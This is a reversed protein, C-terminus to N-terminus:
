DSVAGGGRRRASYPRVQAARSPGAAVIGSPHLCQRECRGTASDEVAGRSTQAKSLPTFRANAYRKIILLEGRIYPVCPRILTPAISAAANPGNRFINM